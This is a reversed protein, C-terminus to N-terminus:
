GALVKKLQRQFLTGSSNTLPKSFIARIGSANGSTAERGPETRSVHGVSFQVLHLALKADNTIDSTADSVYPHNRFFTLM